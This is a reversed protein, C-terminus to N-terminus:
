FCYQNLINQLELLRGHFFHDTNPLWIVPQENTRAWDLVASLEVIDDNEGHLVITRNHDSIIVQYRTVAPAILILKKYEVKAALQSAISTGFSFGAIVFHLNPYLSQVYKYIAVADDVEGIGNDHKGESLGVSRLNPCYCIYNKKNLSTATTKVIKNTYNGGGKPDPHFIIAVGTIAESDPKLELCDLKGVPGDIFFQKANKPMLPLNNM